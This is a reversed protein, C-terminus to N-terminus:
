RDEASTGSPKKGKSTKRRSKESVNIEGTQPVQSMGVGSKRRKNKKDDNHSLESVEDKKEKIELLRIIGGYGSLQNYRADDVEWREGRKRKRGVDTDYVIEFGQTAEVIYTCNGHRKKDTLLFKEWEDIPPEYKFPKKKAFIWKLADEINNLDYDLYFAAEEPVNLEKLVSLPTTLIHKGYCLAENITYSFTEMDNSLQVLLDCDSIHARVDGRPPLCLVNPSDIYGYPLDSFIQWQYKTGKDDCYKDLRKILEKMRGLGKVPDLLRSATIIRTIHHPIELTLPDYCTETHIEQGLIKAYADLKDAAWKSVGIFHNLKPNDIPPKYGLEEFNAHSVFCYYNETSEIYDIADLNFNFFARKCQYKEGPVRKRCVVLDSIRKVQDPDGEDYLVCIDYEKYKKAIEYLFQETGGLKNLRKFYFINSYM